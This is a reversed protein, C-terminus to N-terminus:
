KPQIFNFMEPWKAWFYRGFCNVGEV